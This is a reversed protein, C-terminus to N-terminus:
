HQVFKYLKLKETFQRYKYGHLMVFTSIFCVGRNRAFLVPSPVPLVLFFIFLGSFFLLLVM